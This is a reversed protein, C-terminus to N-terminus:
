IFPIQIWFMYTYIVCSLLKFILLGILFYTFFKFLSKALSSICISWFFLFNRIKNTKLSIRILVETRYWKICVVFGIILFLFVSKLPHLFSYYEHISTPFTFSNIPSKRFVNFLSDGHSGVIVSRPIYKLSSFDCTCVYVRLPGECCCGETFDFLPFYGCTKWSTLLYCFMAYEYLAFILIISVIVVNISRSFMVTHSPLWDCFVVCKIGNM